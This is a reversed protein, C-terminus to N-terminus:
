RISKVQQKCFTGMPVGLRTVISARSSNIEPTQKWTWGHRALTVFDSAGGIWLLGNGQVAGARRFVFFSLAILIGLGFSM